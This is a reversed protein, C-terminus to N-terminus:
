QVTQFVRDLQISWDVACPGRERLYSHFSILRYPRGSRNMNESLSELSARPFARNFFYETKIESGFRSFVFNGYTEYESFASLEEPDMCAIIADYWPMSNRQEIEYRLSRLWESKFLMVHAVFSARATPLEHLLRKYAEFYPYHYEDSFLMTIKHNQEFVQPKALVTDADVVLVAEADCIVDSYLKLLQQYLWGSREMGQPRYRISSKAIPLCESEDIYTCACDACLKKMRASPPAVVVVRRVPHRLNRRIGSIVHPLVDLEQDIAPILVDVELKSAPVRAEPISPQIYKHYGLVSFTERGIGWGSPVLNLGYVARRVPTPRWQNLISEDGLHEVYSDFTCFNRVRLGKLRETMLTEDDRNEAFPGLRKLDDQFCMYVLAGMREKVVYRGYPTEGIALVKHFEYDSSNFPSFPGLVHNKHHRRAWLCIKLTSALWDPHFVCDSDCTGLIDFQGVGQLTRIAKNFAAGWSNPGKPTFSRIIRFPFAKPKEIAIRVGPNTSGDDQIVVTLEFGEVRTRSLTELCLELLEPREHALVALGVRLPHSLGRRRRLLRRIRARAAEHITALLPGLCAVLARLRVYNTEGLISAAVARLRSRIMVRRDPVAARSDGCL